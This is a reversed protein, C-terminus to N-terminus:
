ARGGREGGVLDFPPVVAVGVGEPDCLGGVQGEGDILLNRPEVLECLREPSESRFPPGGAPQAPVASTVLEVPLGRQDLWDPCDGFDSQEVRVPM